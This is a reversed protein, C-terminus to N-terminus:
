DVCRILRQMQLAISESISTGSTLRRFSPAGWFVGCDRPNIFMFRRSMNASQDTMARAVRHLLERHILRGRPDVPLSVHEPWPGLPKGVDM